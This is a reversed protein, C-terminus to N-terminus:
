NLAIVNKIGKANSLLLDQYGEIPYRGTILARVAKPWRQLFVGLSQIAKEYADRGANVTGLLIQNKLVMNRMLLDTDVQIPGRRGPVGTFVFIANVGLFALADFALKSAGTAEYVVDIQGIKKAAGALDMNAASLYTGGIQKTIQGKASSEDERSYVFTQYGKMVLAMAGLLGVPGAGLVLASHKRGQASRGIHQAEAPLRDQVNEVQILAKEAITLPETLVGIERLERPVRFLYQPDDVVMGQIFGHMQKIGRETYDGTICFDQRGARCPICEPHSCPRRVMSVVLDGAKINRVDKGVDAVEALSEHGIVLYDSGKPPIGYQFSAIEKDTGCIGVELMRLLVQSAGINSEEQREIVAIKRSAPYVALAKM